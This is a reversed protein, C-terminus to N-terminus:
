KTPTTAAASLVIVEVDPGINSTCLKVMYVAFAVCVIFLCVRACVIVDERNIAVIALRMQESAVRKIRPVNIWLTTDQERKMQRVVYRRAREAIQRKIPDVHCTPCEQSVPLPIERWKTLCARHFLHNLSDNCQMAVAEEPHGEEVCKDDDDDGCVLKTHCVGCQLHEVAAALNM